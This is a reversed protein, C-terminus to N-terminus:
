TLPNQFIVSVGQNDNLPNRKNNLTSSDAYDIGSNISQLAKLLMIFPSASFAPSYEFSSTASQIVFERLSSVPVAEYICIM